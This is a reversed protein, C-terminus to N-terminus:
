GSTGGPASPEYRRATAGAARAVAERLEPPDLVEVDPGLQLLAHVAHGVSEIPVTTVAWGDAAAPQLATWGARAATGGILFLLRRGDPSLRITASARHLRAEYDRQYGAWHAALDFGGPRQFVEDLVTVAHMRSLRYTRPGAPGSTRGPGADAATTDAATADAASTDAASTDAATADAATAVLYWVGAKLVLGLPELVREVRERDARQYGVALRRQAWVAGAVTALAAPTDPEREWGPADLHFRDRIAEAHSRLEPPLAALLKLRTTVLVEGLGLGAAADPLGALFVAAAEETSLGTLRTRFGDVLQFGGHRGRTAYVPIGAASLAEVDRYVTRLSVELEAALQQASVRGRTHLLLLVSLLRSARM